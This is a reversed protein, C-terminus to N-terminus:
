PKHYVELIPRLLKIWPEREDLGGAFEKLVWRGRDRGGRGELVWTGFSTNWEGFQHVVVVVLLGM